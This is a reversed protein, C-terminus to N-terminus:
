GREFFCCDGYSFFRYQNSIAERYANLLRERGMFASVLLILSSEPLHFNTVLADVAKFEYGPYIFLDTLGQGGQFPQPANLDIASELVRMATTGVAVIRRGDKIASCLREANEETIEWPETHMHHNRIDPDRVPFFTGPGVQLTVEAREVGREELDDLLELSFHLGATPAASAGKQHDSAFVTQYRAHDLQEAARDLYPPLPIEGYQESFAIPNGEFRLRFAGPEHELRAEVTAYLPDLSLSDPKSFILRTGEKLRRAPQVLAIFTGDDDKRGLLVELRGGTTAKEAHLRAPIVMTNNLVLLDGPQLITLIDKFGRHTPQKADKELVLLRSETRKSLPYRAILDQPVDFHYAALQFHSDDKHGM